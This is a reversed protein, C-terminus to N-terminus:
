TTKTKRIIYFGDAYVMYTKGGAAMNVPNAAMPAPFNRGDLASVASSKSYNAKLTYTKERWVVGSELIDRLLIGKDKPQEVPVQSYTSDPNRKGVWYLRQRNQASLKASNILIPEVGLEETIQARIAPAMSKNNEHLFYDPKIKDLAILCGRFLEWGIGDWQTQNGSKQDANHELTHM